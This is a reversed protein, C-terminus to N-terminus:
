VKSTTKFQATEDDILTSTIRPKHFATKGSRSRKRTISSWSVDKTIYILGVAHYETVSELNNCCM